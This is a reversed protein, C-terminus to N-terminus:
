PSPYTALRANLIGIFVLRLFSSSNLSRRLLCRFSTVYILLQNVVSEHCPESFSALWLKFEYSKSVM